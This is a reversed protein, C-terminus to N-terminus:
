RMEKKYVCKFISFTLKHKSAVQKFAQAVEAYSELAEIGSKISLSDLLSAGDNEFNTYNL